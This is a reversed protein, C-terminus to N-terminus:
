GAFRYGAGHVTLLYKPRNPNQELKRRLNLVHTDITRTTPFKEYGWVENLIRERTLVEGRHKVMYHLLGVEMTSLPLTKGRRTVEHRQFDVKVDGFEVSALKEEQKLWEARRLLARIRANLEKLAVPKTMYDDAGLELGLVKDIEEGKATLIVIPVLLGKERLERCVDYGNKRPLMIDLVILDPRGGVAREVGAQGDQATLVEFGEFRLFDSLIKLINEEDEVILIQAM